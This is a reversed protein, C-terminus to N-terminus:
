GMLLCFVVVFCAVIWLIVSKDRNKKTKEYESVLDYASVDKKELPKLEDGLFLQVSKHTDKESQTNEIKNANDM